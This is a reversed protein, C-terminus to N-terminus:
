RRVRNGEISNKNLVEKKGIQITCEALGTAKHDMRIGGHGISIVETAAWIRQSRENLENKINSYKIRIEDIRDM